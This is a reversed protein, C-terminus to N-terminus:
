PNQKLYESWSLNTKGAKKEVTYQYFQRVRYIKRANASEM